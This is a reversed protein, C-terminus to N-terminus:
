LPISHDKRANALVRASRRKKRARAIILNTKRAALVKSLVSVPSCRAPDPLPEAHDPIRCFDLAHNPFVSLNWGHNTFEIDATTRSEHNGGVSIGHIGHDRIDFVENTPFFSRCVLDEQYKFMLLSHIRIGM